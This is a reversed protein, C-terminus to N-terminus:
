PLAFVSQVDGVTHWATPMPRLFVFYLFFLIVNKRFNKTQELGCPLLDILVNSFYTLFSIFDAYLIPTEEGTKELYVHIIRGGCMLVHLKSDQKM